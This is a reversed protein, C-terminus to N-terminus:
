GVILVKYTKDTNADNAHTLTATQDGATYRPVAIAQANATLPTFFLGSFVNILPNNYTTTASNATLTVEDLNNTKGARVDNLVRAVTEPSDGRPNVGLLNVPRVTM